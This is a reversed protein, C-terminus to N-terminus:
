GEGLSGNGKSGLEGKERRRRGESRRTREERGKLGSQHQWLTRSRRWKGKTGTLKWGEGSKEEKAM